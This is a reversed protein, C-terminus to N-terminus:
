FIQRPPRKRNLIEVLKNKFAHLNVLARARKVYALDCHARKALERYDWSENVVAVGCLFFVTWLDAEYEVLNVPVNAMTAGMPYRSFNIIRKDRTHNQDLHGLEHGLIFNCFPCGKRARKWLEEDAVLTVKEGFTTVSAKRLFDDGLGSKYPTSSWNKQDDIMENWFEPITFFEHDRYKERRMSIADIWLKALREPSIEPWFSM